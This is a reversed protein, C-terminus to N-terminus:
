CNFDEKYKCSKNIQKNNRKCTRSHRSSKKVVLEDGIMDICQDDSITLENVHKNYIVKIRDFAKAKDYVENIEKEAQERDGSYSHYSEIIQKNSKEFKYERM